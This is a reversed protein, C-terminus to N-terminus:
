QSGDVSSQWGRGSTACPGREILLAPPQGSDTSLKFNLTGPQGLNEQSFKIKHATDTEAHTSLKVGDLAVESNGLALFCAESPLQEVRLRFCVGSAPEYFAGPYGVHTCAEDSEHRLRQLLYAELEGDGYIWPTGEKVNPEPFVATDNFAPDLQLETDGHVPIVCAISALLTSYLVRM